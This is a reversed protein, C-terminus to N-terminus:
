PLSMQQSSTELTTPITQTVASNQGLGPDANPRYVNRLKEEDPSRPISLCGARLRRISSRPHIVNSRTTVFSLKRRRSRTRIIQKMQQRFLDSQLPRRMSNQQM